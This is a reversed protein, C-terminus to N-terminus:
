GDQFIKLAANKPLSPAHEGLGLGSPSDCLTGELVRVCYGSFLDKGTAMFFAAHAVAADLMPAMTLGLGEIVRGMEARTLESLAPHHGRVKITRPSAEVCMFKEHESWAISRREYVAKRGFCYESISDAFKLLNHASEGKPLVLSISDNPLLSVSYRDLFMLRMLLDDYRSTGLDLLAGFGGEGFAIHIRLLNRLESLTKLRAEPSLDGNLNEAYEEVAKVLAPQFDRISNCQQQGAAVRRTFFNRVAEDVQLPFQVATQAHRQAGSNPNFM